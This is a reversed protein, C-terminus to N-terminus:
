PPHSLHWINNVTHTQPAYWGLGTVWATGVVLTDSPSFGHQLSLLTNVIQNHGNECWQPKAEDTDAGGMERQKWTLNESTAASNTMGSRPQDAATVTCGRVESMM